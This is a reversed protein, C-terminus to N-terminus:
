RICAAVINQNRQADRIEGIGPLLPAGYAFEGGIQCPAIAVALNQHDDRIIFIVTIM